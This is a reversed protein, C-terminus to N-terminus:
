RVEVKHVILYNGGQLEEVTMEFQCGSAGTVRLVENMYGQRYSEDEYVQYWEKRLEEEKIVNSFSYSGLGKPSMQDYCNKYYDTINTLVQKETFGAEALTRKGDSTIERNRYEEANCPPLYVSLDQRMHTSAYDADTKNFYDYTHGETDDWTVDVNYYGDSLEVINWAHSEGAYGTCYYCPINLQQLLYQFARAYGACVTKGNVLASYASQNMEAGLHYSDKEILANHVYKEKEYDTALERAGSLIQEANQSFTNQAGSLNQATSNFKLDIEVCEGNSRFKCAYSTDLWFLEPHDNYVASFINKLQNSNVSEVPAFAQTLQKANSFIQRYLHKGTDDLMDYYPYFRTDFELGDGTDGLGLQNQLRQATDENVQEREEVIQRYGNKGAVNKPAAVGSKNPQIYEATLDNWIAAKDTNTDTNGQYGPEQGGSNGISQSGGTGGNGQSGNGDSDGQRNDGGATEEEAAAPNEKDDSEETEPASFEESEPEESEQTYLINKIRDTMDPNYACMLILGVLLVVLGAIFFLIRSLIKM